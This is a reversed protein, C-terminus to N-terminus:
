KVPGFCSSLTSFPVLLKEVPKMLFTSCECMAQRGVYTDRILQKRSHDEYAKMQPLPGFQGKQYLVLTTPLTTHKGYITEKNIDSKDAVAYLFKGPWINHPTVLALMNSKAIVEVALSTDVVEIEELTSSFLM